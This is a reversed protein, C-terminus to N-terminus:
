NTPCTLCHFHSQPWMTPLPLPLLHPSPSHPPPLHLCLRAHLLLLLLLLSQGDFSRDQQYKLSSILYLEISSNINPHITTFFDANVPLSGSLSCCKSWGVGCLRLLRAERRRGVTPERRSIKCDGDGRGDGMVERGANVVFGHSPVYTVRSLVDHRGCDAVHLLLLVSLAFPSSFVHAPMVTMSVVQVM